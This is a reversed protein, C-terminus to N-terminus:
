NMLPSFFLLCVQVPNEVVGQAQQQTCLSKKPRGRGRKLPPTDQAITTSGELIKLTPKSRRKGEVVLVDDNKSATASKKPM